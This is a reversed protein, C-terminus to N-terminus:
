TRNGWFAAWDQHRVDLRSRTALRMALNGRTETQGKM